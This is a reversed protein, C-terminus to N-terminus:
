AGPAAASPALGASAFRVTFLAGPGRGAAHSNARARANSITVATGHQSAIEKVIALGLGSGDAQVDLARYFPQFV